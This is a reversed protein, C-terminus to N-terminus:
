VAKLVSFSSEFIEAVTDRFFYLNSERRVRRSIKDCVGAAPMNMEMVMDMIENMTM